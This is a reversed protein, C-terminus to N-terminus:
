LIEHGEIFLRLVSLSPFNSFSTTAFLRINSVSDLDGSSIAVQWPQISSAATPRKDDNASVFSMNSSYLGTLSGYVWDILASTTAMPEKEFWEFEVRKFRQEDMQQLGSALNCPGNALDHNALVGLGELIRREDRCSERSLQQLTANPSQFSRQLATDRPDRTVHVLLWDDDPTSYQELKGKVPKRPLWRHERV